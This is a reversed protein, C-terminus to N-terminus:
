EGTYGLSIIEQAGKAALDYLQMDLKCDGTNFELYYKGTGVVKGITGLGLANLVKRTEDVRIGVSREVAKPEKRVDAAEIVSLEELSSESKLLERYMLAWPRAGYRRTKAKKAKKQDKSRSAAAAIMAAFDDNPKATEPETPKKSSNLEDVLIVELKDRKIGKFEEKTFGQDVLKSIINARTMGAFEGVQVQM